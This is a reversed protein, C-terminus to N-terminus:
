FRGVVGAVRISPRTGSVSVTARAQEWAQALVGRDAEEFLVQLLAHDLIDHILVATPIRSGTAPTSAIINPRGPCRRAEM